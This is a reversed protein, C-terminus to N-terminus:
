PTSGDLRAADGDGTLDVWSVSTTSNAAQWESVTPDGNDTRQYVTGDAAVVVAGEAPEGPNGTFEEMLELVATKAGLDNIPDASLTWGPMTFGLGTSSKDAVIGTISLTSDVGDSAAWTATGRVVM